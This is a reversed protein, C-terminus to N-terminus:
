KAGRKKEPDGFKAAWMGVYVGILFWTFAILVVDM